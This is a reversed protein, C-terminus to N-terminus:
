AEAFVVSQVGAEALLQRVQDLRGTAQMARRGTVILAKQGFEAVAQGVSGLAGEGFLLRSPPRFEFRVM